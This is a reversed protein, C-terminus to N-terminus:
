TSTTIDAPAFTSLDAILAATLQDGGKMNWTYDLKQDRSGDYKTLSQIEAGPALAVHKGKLVASVDRYDGAYKFITSTTIDAPAFTSLDAILAATLQVGGKMNWTYDLKQDRSGDY